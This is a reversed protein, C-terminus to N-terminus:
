AGLVTHASPNPLTALELVRVLHRPFDLRQVGARVVEEPVLVFLDNDCHSWPEILDGEPEIRLLLGLDLQM